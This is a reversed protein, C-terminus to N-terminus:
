KKPGEYARRLGRGFEEIRDYLMNANAEARSSVRDLITHALGLDITVSYTEGTDGNSFLISKGNFQSGFQLRLINYNVDREAKAEPRFIGTVKAGTTTANSTTAEGNISVSAKPSAGIEAGVQGGVKGGNTETSSAETTISQPVTSGYSDAVDDEIRNLLQNQYQTNYILSLLDRMDKNPKLVGSGTGDNYPIKNVSAETQEKPPDPLQPQAAPKEGEKQKTQFLEGLSALDPFM